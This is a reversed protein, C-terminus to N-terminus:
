VGLDRRGRRRWLLRGWRWSLLCWRSSEYGARSLQLAPRHRCSNRVRWGWQMCQKNDTTPMNIGRESVDNWGLRFLRGSRPKWRGRWWGHCYGDLRLVHHRLPPDHVAPHRFAWRWPPPLIYVVRGQRWRRRRGRRGWWHLKWLGCNRPSSRKTHCSPDWHHLGWRRGLWKLQPRGRKRRRRGVIDRLPVDRRRTCHCLRFNRRLLRSSANRCLRPLRLGSHRVGNRCQRPHVDNHPQPLVRSLFYVPPTARPVRSFLFYQVTPLPCHIGSARYGGQFERSHVAGTSLFSFFHGAGVLSSNRRSGPEQFGEL